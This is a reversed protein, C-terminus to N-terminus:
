RMAWPAGMACTAAPMPMERWHAELHHFRQRSNPGAPKSSRDEAGMRRVRMAALTSSRMTYRRRLRRQAGVEDRGVHALRGGRHVPHQDAPAEVAEVAEVALYSAVLVGM